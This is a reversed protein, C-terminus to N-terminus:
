TPWTRGVRAPAQFVIVNGGNPSRNIMRLENKLSAVVAQAEPSIRHVDYALVDRIAQLMGDVEALM